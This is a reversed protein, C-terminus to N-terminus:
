ADLDGPKAFVERARSNRFLEAGRVQAEERANEYDVLYGEYSRLPDPISMGLDAGLFWVVGGLLAAAVLSGIRSVFLALGLVLVIGLAISLRRALYGRRTLPVLKTDVLSSKTVAEKPRTRHSRRDGRIREIGELICLANSWDVRSDPPGLRAYNRRSATHDADSRGELEINAEHSRHLIRRSPNRICAEGLM